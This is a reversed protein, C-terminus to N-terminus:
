LAGGLLRFYRSGYWFADNARLRKVNAFVNAHWHCVSSAIDSPKFMRSMKTKRSSPETNAPVSSASTESRPECISWISCSSARPLRTAFIARSGFVNRDVTCIPTVSEPKREAEKPSDDIEGNMTGTTSPQPTGLLTAAGSVVMTSVSTMEYQEITIESITGFRMAMCRLSCIARATTGAILANAFTHRGIMQSMPLFVFPMTRSSPKSGFSVSDSTESSSSRTSTLEFVFRVLSSRVIRSSTNSAESVM